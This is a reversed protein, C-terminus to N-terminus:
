DIPDIEDPLDPDQESSGGDVPDPAALSRPDVPTM